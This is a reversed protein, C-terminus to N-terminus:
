IHQALNHTSMVKIGDPHSLLKYQVHLDEEPSNVIKLVTGHLQVQLTDKKRTINKFLEWQRGHLPM